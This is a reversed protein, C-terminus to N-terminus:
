EQCREFIENAPPESSRRRKGHCPLADLIKLLVPENLTGNRICRERGAAAMIKRMPEDNLLGFCKEACEEPTDWFVAEENEKYMALHEETREACLVSGIYPIEASRQTHRDRNGKSLLGLCIKASQIAKVYGQGVLGSGRWINKIVPWEPAKQWRDGYLTLPVGLKILRSIFPGREQMWTGIFAVESAWRNKEEETLGVFPAHAIEDASRSVLVVKPVGWDYAEKVNPRRVVAMLDFHSASKRFLSFRKKDRPGFPDDVAYSLFWDGLEKLTQVTKPGIFVCQDSWIVEFRKRKISALLRHRIYSEMWGPGIEYILKNLVKKIFPHQPLFSGPDIVKVEHGLRRLADARHRSTGYEYGLYLINLIM